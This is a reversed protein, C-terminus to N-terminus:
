GKKGGGDHAKPCHQKAVLGALSILGLAWTLKFPVFTVAKNSVPLETVNTFEFKLFAIKSRPVLAAAGGATRSQPASPLSSIVEPHKLMRVVRPGTLM